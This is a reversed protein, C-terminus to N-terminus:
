RGSPMKFYALSSSVPVGPEGTQARREASRREIESMGLRWEESLELGERLGELDLVMPTRTIHFDKDSGVIGAERSALFDDLIKQMFEYVLGEALLPDLEEWEELDILHRETAIYFHEVAGRVTRTRVVEACDLAELQKMHYSVDSLGYGGLERSLGLERSVEVPSMEGREVLLRLCKARLPHSMAKLRNQQLPNATEKRVAQAAM